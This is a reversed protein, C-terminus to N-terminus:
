YGILPTEFNEGDYETLKGQVIADILEQEDRLIWRDDDQAVTDMGPRTPSKTAALELIPDGPEFAHQMKMLVM